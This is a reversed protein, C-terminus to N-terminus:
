DEFRKKCSFLHALPGTEAQGGHLSDHLLGAAKDPDVRFRVVPRAELDIERADILWDGLYCSSRAVADHSRLGDEDNFVNFGHSCHGASHELAISVTYQFSRITLGRNAQRGVRCLGNM